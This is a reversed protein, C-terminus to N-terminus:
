TFTGPSSGISTTRLLAAATASTSSSFSVTSVSFLSAAVLAIRVSIPLVIVIFFVPLELM